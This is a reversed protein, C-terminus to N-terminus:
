KKGFKDINLQLYNLSDPKFETKYFLFELNETKAMTGLKYKLSFTTDSKIIGQYYNLDYNGNRNVFHEMYINDGETWWVGWGWIGIKKNKPYFVSDTKLQNLYRSNKISPNESYSFNMHFYGNSFLVVPLYNNEQKAVYIGKTKLIGNNRVNLKDVSLRNKNYITICSSFLLLISISQIVFKSKM